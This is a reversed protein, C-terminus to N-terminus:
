RASAIAVRMADVRAELLKSATQFGGAVVKLEDDKLVRQDVTKAIKSMHEEGQVSRVRM